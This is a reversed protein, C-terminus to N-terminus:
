FPNIKLPSSNNGPNTSWKSSQCRYTQETFHLDTNFVASKKITIGVICISVSWSGANKKIIM